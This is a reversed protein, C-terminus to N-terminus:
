LATLQVTVTDGTIETTFRRTGKEYYAKLASLANARRKKGAEDLGTCDVQFTDGVNQLDRFPYTPRRGRGKLLPQNTIESITV